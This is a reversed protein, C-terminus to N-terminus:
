NGTWFVDTNETTVNARKLSATHNDFFIINVMGNHPFGITGATLHHAGGYADGLMACQSFKSIMTLPLPMFYDTGHHAYQTNPSYTGYRQSYYIAQDMTYGKDITYYNLMTSNESCQCIAATQPAAGNATRGASRLYGFTMLERTYDFIPKGSSVLKLPPMYSPFDISYEQLVSGTQKLNNVCRIRKATDRAKNLSPLLLAALIAIIAVVILLEILTFLGKMKKM